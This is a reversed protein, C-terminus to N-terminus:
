TTAHLPWEQVNQKHVPGILGLIYVPIALDKKTTNEQM